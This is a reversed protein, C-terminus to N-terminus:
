KNTEEEILAIEAPTLEYLKYVLQDIEQEIDLVKSSDPDDLIQQVLNSLEVKQTETRPAIPAKVMNKKPFFLQKHKPLRCKSRAYHDFLKSNLIALLSLDTTPFFATGLLLDKSTDYAAQMVSGHPAYIIKPRKLLSYFGFAPFEWYYDVSSTRKKLRDKHPNLHKSIAPYTAAFVREAESIGKIGSWLWRRDRSSPICILYASEGVWKRPKIFQKILQSSNRDEAILQRRISDDIVFARNCGITIGVHVEEHQKLPTGTSILKALLAKPSISETPQNTSINPFFDTPLEHESSTYIHTNEQTWVRINLVATQWNGSMSDNFNAFAFPQFHENACIFFLAAPNTTKQHLNEAVDRLIEAYGSERRFRILFPRREGLADKPLGSFDHCDIIREAVGDDLGLFPLPLPLAIQELKAEERIPLNLKEQLFHMLTDKDGIRQIDDQTILM